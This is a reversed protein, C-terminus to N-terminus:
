GEIWLFLRVKVPSYKTLNSSIIREKVFVDSEPYFDLLCVSDLDCVRVRSSIFPPLTSNVFRELSSNDKMLAFNRLSDNRAINELIEEQIKELVEPSIKQEGNIENKSSLKRDQVLLFFATLILLVGFVAEFVKLWGKKNVM